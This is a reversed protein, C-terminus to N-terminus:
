RFSVSVADTLNTRDPVDRHWAQFHWTEGAQVTVLGTPQPFAAFSPDLEFAGSSGSGLVAYSFRGVAGGLCLTGDSGGAQPVFGPVRSNLFYGFAHLPLGTARLTLRASTLEDDGLVIMRAPAGTSNVVAPSCYRVGLPRELPDLPDSGEDREDSDLAGDLDRDVGLREASETVVLTWTLEGGNTALARLAQPTHVEAARDSRYVGGDLVYGRPEGGVVGKVVLGVAGTSAAAEFQALRALAAAPASAVDGLTVQQGVGAHSDFSATGPPEEPNTPSGLPLDSGAFSLLFAVLDAVDQDSQVVFAPQSVFRALSDVSGDHLFGFGATSALQTADFGTREHLNRLQPIKFNGQSSGDGSTIPHHREGNPGPPIPTFVGGQLTTDSGMGTPLTHCQVCAVGDLFNPPRMLALGRQADGSPLPAGANGFRGTRSHGELVLDTRLGNDLRRFPNPPIRITALFAEFAQMEGPTSSTDDGLLGEFAAHFAELGTRDGRWHHPEKGVIDQLTQTLMPGKMPHWDDCGFDRCNQDFPTVNGSPDGLDWALRDMRADVHCTACSVHGTGSTQHTDYLFRRGARIVAPTPDHFTTAAVVARAAVDIVVLRAGFRELVYLRGRSDDLALGTPGEGLAIPPGSRTGDRAFSVINNSGMGAVWMTAGDVSWAVARPDGISSTRLAPAVTPTLYDLHPNLDFRQYALVGSPDVTTGLVTAFRGNLNPEFRRENHADTGVVTVAGDSPNVALAMCVNMLGTHYTVQLSVVDIVALDHDLLEWGPRRGSRDARDGTVYRTWDGGNDDRWSGNTDRRVILGVEPPTALGASLAPAFVGGANPPPNAGAWPGEPDGVANPPYSGVGLFLGGGLITTGNGSEFVAVYIRTGDTSVALARPDEGAIRVDLPPAARDAPDFVQVVNAQSCSVFAREPAGAFVVDCPEDATALTAVVRATPVHVISVSDSVHNVVWAEDATRWRVSVPDLGVPIDATLLPEGGQVDFVLLRGDATNCVLLVAGDDRLAIPHVQPTEFNAFTTPDTGLQPSAVACLILLTSM